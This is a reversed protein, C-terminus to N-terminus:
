CNGSISCMGDTVWPSAWPAVFASSVSYGTAFAFGFNGGAIGGISVSIDFASRIAGFKDNNNLAKHLSYANFALDAAFLGRGAIRLSETGGLVTARAGTHQNGGWDLSNWKGNMGRWLDGCEGAGCSRLTNALDASTIGLQLADTGFSQPSDCGSGACVEIVPLDGAEEAFSQSYFDLPAFISFRELDTRPLAAAEAYGLAEDAMRGAREVQCLGCVLVEETFKRHADAEARMIEEIADGMRENYQDM